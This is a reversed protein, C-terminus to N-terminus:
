LKHLEANQVVIVEVSSCLGEDKGLRRYRNGDEGGRCDDRSSTGVCRTNIKEVIQVMADEEFNLKGNSVSVGMEPFGVFVVRCSSCRWNYM